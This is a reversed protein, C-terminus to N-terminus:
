GASVQSRGERFRDRCAASCFHHEGETVASSEPVRLGCVPDQVLREPGRPAEPRRGTAARRSGRLLVLAALWVAVVILFLKVM